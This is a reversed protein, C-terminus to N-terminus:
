RKLLKDKWFILKDVHSTFFPDTTESDKTLFSDKRWQITKTGKNFIM